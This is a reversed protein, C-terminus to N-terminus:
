DPKGDQAQGPHRAVASLPPTIDELSRGEAAVGLLLAIVGGLMMVTAGVLYGYFLGTRDAGDGILAGYIVPGLAGFGQAIAFFVAIAKSRVELPFIESVTLYAAGVGASGIFFIISWAVTQTAATLMGARFLFATAVLLGGSLLYTGGIMPRRGVTDFFRGFILPGIFNGAAFAIFFLPVEGDAVHYIKTLVLAYTFFIANYLFSQAIMLAAGLVSRAPSDRFLVRVLALYGNGTTPVLDVASRPDVVPISVGSAAVDHEIRAISQEAAEPRGRMIEWRPSEPLRRRVWIIVVGLVPGILFGLRWGLNVPIANLLVFTGLTAVIAGGWYTANVAVDVRGRYKAPILEDIAANIAAYEGGIGTGAVFRTLYLFVLWYWGSGFTLATLGSGVLYVALTIVFLRKRGLTDSLRGFVLAGVIEGLLYVTAVLGVAWSSLNLTDPKSWVGSVASAVQIELGDLLWATGLAAVLKTHFPSWPLRDLRAPILSSLVPEAATEAGSTGGQGRSTTM